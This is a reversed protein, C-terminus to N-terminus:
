PAKEQEAAPRAPQLAELTREHFKLTRWAALALGIMVIASLFYAPWVFAAYGGMAFYDNM